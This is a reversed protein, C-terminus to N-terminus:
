WFLTQQNRKERQRGSKNVEFNVAFEGPDESNIEERHHTTPGLELHFREHEADGFGFIKDQDGRALAVYTDLNNQRRSNIPRPTLTPFCFAASHM